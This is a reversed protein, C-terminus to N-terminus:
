VTVAHAALTGLREFKASEEDDLADEAEGPDAVAPDVLVPMAQRALAMDAKTFGGERAARYRVLGHFAPLPPSSNM